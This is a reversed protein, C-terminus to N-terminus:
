MLANTKENTGISKVNFGNSKRQNWKKVNLDISQQQNRHKENYLRQEKNHEDTKNVHFRINHQKNKQKKCQLLYKNTPEQTTRRLAVANEKTRINKVKLGIRKKPEQSNEISVLAKKTPEQAKCLLVM